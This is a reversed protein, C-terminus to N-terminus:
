KGEEQRLWKKDANWADNAHSCLSFSSLFAKEKKKAIDFRFV